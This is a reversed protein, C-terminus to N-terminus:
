STDTPLEAVLLNGQYTQDANAQDHVAEVKDDTQIPDKFLNLIVWRSM